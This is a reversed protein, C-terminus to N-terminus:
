ESTENIAAAIAGLGEDIREGIFSLDLNKVAIATDNQAKALQLIAHAIAFNSDSKAKEAIEDDVHM